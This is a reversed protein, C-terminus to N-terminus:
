RAIAAEIDADVIAIRNAAALGQAADTEVDVDLSGVDNKEQATAVGGLFLALSLSALAPALCPKNLFM